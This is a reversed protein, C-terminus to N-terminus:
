GSFLQFKGTGAASHERALLTPRVRDPSQHPLKDQALCDAIASDNMDLVRRDISLVGVRPHPTAVRFDNRRLLNPNSTQAAKTSSPLAGSSLWCCPGVMETFTFSTV